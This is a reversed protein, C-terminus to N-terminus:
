RPPRAPRVLLGAIRHPAAPSVQIWIELPAELESLHAVVERDGSAVYSTVKTKAVTTQLSKCFGLYAELPVAQKFSEAFSAGYHAGLEEPGAALAELWSGLARGAPTGHVGRPPSTRYM